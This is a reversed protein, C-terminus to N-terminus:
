KFGMFFGAYLQNKLKDGKESPVMITGNKECKNKMRDQRSHLREKRDSRLKDYAAQQEDTLIRQLKKESAERESSRARMEKEHRKMMEQRSKEMKRAQKLEMRYVEQEQKDTLNLRRDLAETYQKAREEPSKHERQMKYQRQQRGEQTRQQAFGAASIGGILATILLIRKM